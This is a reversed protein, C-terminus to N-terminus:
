STCLVEAIAAKIKDVLEPNEELSVVASVEGHGLLEEGYYYRHNRKNLVGMDAGLSVLELNNNIGTKFYLPFKGDIGPPAVRNKAIEFNIWKGVADGNIAIMDSKRSKLFIRSATWHEIAHGGPTQRGGYPSLNDRVQNILILRGGSDDIDGAVSSLFTSMLKATAGMTQESMTKALVAETAAAGAISDFIVLANEVTQFITRAADCAKEGSAPTIRTWSKRDFGEFRGVFEENMGRELDIYYTPWGKLQASVTAHMALTSKGSGFGGAFEHIGVPLPRRLLYDLSHSGTSLSTNHGIIRDGSRVAKSGFNKVLLANLKEVTNVPIEDTNKKTKRTKAM